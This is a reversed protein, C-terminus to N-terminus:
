GINGGETRAVKRRWVHLRGFVHEELVGRVYEAKGIGHFTAFAQIAEELEATMPVDIRATLKGDPHSDPNRAFVPREDTM